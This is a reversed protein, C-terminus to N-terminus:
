RSDRWSGTRFHALDVDGDAGSQERIPTAAPWREARLQRHQDGGCEGCGGRAGADDGHDVHQEGGDCGDGGNRGSEGDSGGPLGHGHDDGSNRWGDTGIDALHREGDAGSQEGYLYIRESLTGSQSDTNTVVVNVAGAAHAPTTATISTSSVVTM